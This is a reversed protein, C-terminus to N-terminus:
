PNEDYRIIRTPNKPVKKPEKQTSISSVGLYQGEVFVQPVVIQRKNMREMLELQLRDSNVCNLLLQNLQAEPNFLTSTIIIM